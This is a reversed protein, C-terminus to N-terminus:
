WQMPTPHGVPEPALREEDTATNASEEGNERKTEGTRQQPCDTCSTSGRRRKPSSRKTMEDDEDDKTTTGAESKGMTEQGETRATHTHTRTQKKEKGQSEQVASDPM